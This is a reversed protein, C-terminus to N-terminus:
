KVEHLTFNVGIKREVSGQNKYHLEIKMGQYLQADYNSFDSYFGDKMVVDFGFQNLMLDPDVSEPPVGMSQQVIGTASDYVELDVKDGEACGVIEVENIKAIPYPVVFEIPTDQGAPCTIMGVGHKRRFLKGGASKSAFPSQGLIINGDKDKDPIWTM